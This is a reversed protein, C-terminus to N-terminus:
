RNYHQAYEALVAHLHWQGFVLTRDTMKTQVTPVFREADADTRSSQPPIKVATIGADALLV